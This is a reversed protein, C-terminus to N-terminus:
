LVTIRKNVVVQGALLRFQQKGAYVAGDNVSVFLDYQYLGPSLTATQSHPIHLQIMGIDTSYSIEPISGDPPDTVPTTLSLITQTNNAIDLRMPSVMKQAQGFDDTWVIQATFDEGQDIVLPVNAAPM